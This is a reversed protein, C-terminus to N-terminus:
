FKKSAKKGIDSVVEDVPAVGGAPSDRNSASV